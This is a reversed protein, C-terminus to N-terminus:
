GGPLAKLAQRCSDVISQTREKNGRGFALDAQGAAVARQYALAADSTRGLHEYSQGLRQNLIAPSGGLKLAREYTGAAGSYNNLQFQQTGTKVLAEIGGISTQTSDSGSNNIRPNRGQRVNIEIFGAGEKPPSAAVTDSSSPTSTPNPDPDEGKATGGSIPPNVPVSGKVDPSVPRINIEAASGDPRPLMGEPVSPLGTGFNVVSPKRSTVDNTVAPVDTADTQTKVANQSSKDQSQVPVDGAGNPYFGNGPNQGSENTLRNDAVQGSSDKSNRFMAAAAGLFLVLVFAACAGVIAARRDPMASIRLSSVLASRLQNRKIKDLESDPNLEVLREACELAEAIEGRRAHCDSKLAWASISAPNAMTASEAVALAEEIRGEGLAKVGEGILVDLKLQAEKRDDDPLPTGCRRCFDSDLNNFTACHKCSVM